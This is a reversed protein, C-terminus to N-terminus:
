FDRYPTNKLIQAEEIAAWEEEMRRRGDELEDCLARLRVVEEKAQSEQELSQTAAQLGALKAELERRERLVEERERELNAELERRERLGEERERELKAELERRGRAGEEREKEQEEDIASREKAGEEREKEQEAEVRRLEALADAAKGELVEREKRREKLADEWAQDRESREREREREWAGREREREGAVSVLSAKLEAIHNELARTEREREEQLSQSETEVKGRLAVMEEQFLLKEEKARAREKAWEQEREKEKEGAQEMARRLALVEEELAQKEVVLKAVAEEKERKMEERGQQRAEEGEGRVGSLENHVQKKGKEVREIAELHERKIALTQREWAERGEALERQHQAKEQAREKGLFELEAHLKASVARANALQERAKQLEGDGLMEDTQMGAHVNRTPSPALSANTFLTAGVGSPDKTGAPGHRSEPSNDHSLLPSSRVRTIPPQRDILTASAEAPLPRPAPRATGQGQSQQAHTHSMATHLALQPRCLREVGGGCGECSTPARM